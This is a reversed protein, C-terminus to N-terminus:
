HRHCGCHKAGGSGGAKDSRDARRWCRAIFYRLRRGSGGFLSSGRCRGCRGRRGRFGRFGCRGRGIPEATCGGSRGACRCFRLLGRFGRGNHPRGGRSRCRPPHRITGTRRADGIVHRGHAGRRNRLAGAYPASPQEAHDHEADAESKSRQAIANRVCSKLRKASQSTECYRNGVRRRRSRGLLRKTKQHARRRREFLAAATVGAVADATLRFARACNDRRPCGRGATSLDM